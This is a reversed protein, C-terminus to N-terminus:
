LRELRAGLRELPEALNIRLHELFGLNLLHQAFAGRVMNGVRAALTVVVDDDGTNSEAATGDCIPLAVEDTGAAKRLRSSTSQGLPAAAAPELHHDDVENPEVAIRSGGNGLRYNSRNRHNAPSITANHVTQRAQRRHTRQRGM